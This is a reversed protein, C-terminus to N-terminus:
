GDGLPDASFRRTFLFVVLGTLVVVLIPLLGETLSGAVLWEAFGSLGRVPWTASKFIVYGLVWGAHLGIPLWLSATRWRALALVGGLIVLMLFRSVMTLPDAFRSLIHGLFVFGAGWSEPEEIIAGPPSELFHVAAFLLSVSVIAFSPRMARLFIGLLVGRFLLEELVSVIIASSVAKRLSRGWDIEMVWPNRVGQTSEAADRWMFFGAEVLVWGSLLLLGGSLLFGFLMQSLGFENRRLPQGAKSIRADPLRLSWPTDRFLMEGKGQRLWQILPWLLVFASLILARDFFRSFNGESRKAAAGLWSLLGRSESGETWRALDMGVSYIWPSLIAALM